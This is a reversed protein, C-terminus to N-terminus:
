KFVTTIVIINDIITIFVVSSQKNLPSVRKAHAIGMPAMGHIFNLIYLIIYYLIIYYLIIYYLIVYCLIVVYCLMVYCLM